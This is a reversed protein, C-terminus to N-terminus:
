NETKQNLEYIDKMIIELRPENVVLDIVELCAFLESVVKPVSQEQQNIRIRLLNNKKVLVKNERHELLKELRIKNKVSTFEVEITKYSTVEQKLQELNGDYIKKGLDIIIIRKCLEEIDDMDHTTLIITTKDRQNIDKLFTRIEQKAIADLGITPEDLFLVKPKHLLSAAIECRMREGLSLKRTPIHLYRDLKLIKTFYALREQYQEDDLEYIDRYLNFSDIVPIDYQLLRRQGFVVGINYTYEYRQQHPDFGLVRINGSSPNIIGTMIKITTSKGAGNPGVYGIFEGEEVTFSVDQLASVATWKRYFISKVSHWFGQQEKTPVQFVKCLNEANIIDKSM